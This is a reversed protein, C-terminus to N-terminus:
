AKACSWASWIDSVVQNDVRRARLRFCYTWGATVKNFRMGYTPGARAGPRIAHGSRGTAIADGDDCLRPPVRGDDGTICGRGLQRPDVAFGDQTAELEIRVVETATNAFSVCIARKADAGKCPFTRVFNPTGPRDRAAAPAVAQLGIM